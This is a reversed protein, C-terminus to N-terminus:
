NRRYRIMIGVSLTGHRREVGFHESLANKRILEAIMGQKQGLMMEMLVARNWIRRHKQRAEGLAGFLQSKAGRNRDQRKAIRRQHGLVIRHQVHERIPPQLEPYAGAIQLM